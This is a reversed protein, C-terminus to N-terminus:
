INFKWQYTEEDFTANYYSKIADRLFSAAGEGAANDYTLTFRKDDVYMQALGLHAEKPYKGYYSLWKKHLEVVEHAESSNPDGTKMAERLKENIENALAEVTDFEEKSLNKFKKYYTQVKDEGYKDRIEKGYKEENQDILNKKLGEFKEEASMETGGDLAIITKDVNALLKNLEEQRKIINKKHDYLAKKCDFDKSLVIEKIKDLSLELSKFLLIQQLLNVENDSYIRYGASNVRCPKLLGIEDYYRLTRTTVGSLQALKKITYEM